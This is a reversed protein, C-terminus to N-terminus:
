KSENALKELTESASKAVLTEKKRWAVSDWIEVRDGLGIFSIGGELGAYSALADPIVVRGQEDCSAGFASGLIFRETDRIGKTIIRTEGKLRELLAGFSDAPVLVLCQEYWKAVIFKEGLNKRFSSPIAVRRKPSLVGAYTGLFM